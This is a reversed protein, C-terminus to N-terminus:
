TEKRRQLHMTCSETQIASAASHSFYAYIVILFVVSEDARAIIYTDLHPEKTVDLELFFAIFFAM